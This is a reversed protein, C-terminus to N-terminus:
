VIEVGVEGVRVEGIRWAPIGDNTLQAAIEGAATADCIVAFGVGMNFVRFMEQDAVNGCKQLWTFVPPVAWSGRAVHVRLGPPLIRGVNDPLGGGTVNALGHISGRHAALWGRVPMVYLGRPTLVEVGV